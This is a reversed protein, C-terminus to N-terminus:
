SELAADGGMAPGLRYEIPGLAEPKRLLQKETGGVLRDKVGESIGVAVPPAALALHPLEPDSADIGGRPLRPQGVVFQHVAKALGSHLDVALHQSVQGHGVGTGKSPQQLNSLFGESQRAWRPATPPDAPDM